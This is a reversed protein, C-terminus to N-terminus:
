CEREYYKFSGKDRQAGGIELATITEILRSIGTNM